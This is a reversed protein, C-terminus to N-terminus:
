FILTILGVFYPPSPAVELFCIYRQLYPEAKVLDGQVVEFYIGIYFDAYAIADTGQGDVVANLVADVDSEGLFLAMVEMM